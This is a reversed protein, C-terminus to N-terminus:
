WESIDGAKQGTYPLKILKNICYAARLDGQLALSIGDLGDTEGAFFDQGSAVHDHGYDTTHLVTWKGLKAVAREANDYPVTTDAKSHFLLIHHTPTWGQTVDNSALALHLDEMVGRKTPLPIGVATKYQDKYQNYINTFYELCKANMINRMKASGNSELIDHYYDKNGDKGNTYLNKFANEIDGTTKDKSEIWDLIGTEIFKPNFYDSAKHTRMYPNSDIMGKVILPLVVPMSMAKGEQDSKVYYMLTVMPDYPGDGCVSGSFHLEEDLHNQEIFRHTAMAVAGGQSYGCVVTRWDSRFKLRYNDLAPDHLYAYHAAWAGDLVQRATLEQYLYPHAHDKTDGYGEYDVMVVLDNCPDVGNWWNQVKEIKEKIADIPHKFEKWATKVFDVISKGAKQALKYGTTLNLSSSGSLSFLVGTDSATLATTQSPCEKNSTITIHTGILMNSVKSGLQKEPCAAMGSLTITEGASNVSEYTFKFTYVTQEKFKDNITGKITGTTAARRSPKANEFDANESKWVVERSLNYITDQRGTLSDTVIEEEVSTMVKGVDTVKVNKPPTLGPLNLDQASINMTTTMFMLLGIFVKRM